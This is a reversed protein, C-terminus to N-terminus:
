DDAASQEDTELDLGIDLNPASNTIAGASILDAGADAYDAVDDLHVNGSVEIPIKGKIMMSCKRVQYPKMNDLLVMGAGADLAEQVQDTNDCEVEILRGPWRLKARRVADAISLGALHNDKLLIFDSLSGRHNVGGGARVAAKELARLGPTTKRTDWIRAGGHAARVWRRTMTAVGSLHCLFNLSTREAMLISALVGEVRAIVQGPQLDAGDELQWDVKVTADIQEYTEQACASGALVGEQRARYLAAARKGEPLLSATLDGLPGIDEALARCVIERVAGAPPDNMM